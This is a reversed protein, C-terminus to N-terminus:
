FVHGFSLGLGFRPGYPGYPYRYGWWPDWPDWPDAYYRPRPRGGPEADMLGSYRIIEWSGAGDRCGTGYAFATRMETSASQQFERCPRGYDEFTRTPLVTGRAGTTENAWSTAEGVKNNELADQTAQRLAMRDSEVLAERVSPKTAACGSLVAALLGGILLFRLFAQSLRVVREVGIM